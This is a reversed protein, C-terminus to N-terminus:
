SFYSLRLSLCDKSTYDIQRMIKPKHPAPNKWRGKGWGVSFNNLLNKNYFHFLMLYSTVDSFLGPTPLAILKINSMNNLRVKSSTLIKICLIFTSSKMILNKWAIFYEIIKVAYIHTSAHMYKWRISIFIYKKLIEKAFTNQNIYSGDIQSIFYHKWHDKLM